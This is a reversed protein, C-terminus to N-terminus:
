RACDEYHQRLMRKALIEAGGAQLSVILNEIAVEAFKAAAQEVEPDKSNLLVFINVLTSGNVSLSIEHSTIKSM